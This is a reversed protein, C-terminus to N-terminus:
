IKYIIGRVDTEQTARLVIVTGIVRTRRQVPILLVSFHFKTKCYINLNVVEHNATGPSRSTSKLEYKEIFKILIEM